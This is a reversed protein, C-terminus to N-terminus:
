ADHSYIGVYSNCAAQASVMCIASASCSDEVTKAREMVPAVYLQLDIIGNLRLVGVAKYMKHAGDRQSTGRYCSNQVTIYTSRRGRRIYQWLYKRHEERDTKTFQRTHKSPLHQCWSRLRGCNAAMSSPQRIQNAIDLHPVMPFCHLLCPAMFMTQLHNTRTQLLSKCASVLKAIAKGSLARLDLL